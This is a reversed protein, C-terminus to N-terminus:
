MFVSVVRFCFVIREWLLSYRSLVTPVYGFYVTLCFHSPQSPLRGFTLGHHLWGFFPPVTTERLFSRALITQSLLDGSPWYWAPLPLALSSTRQLALRACFTPRPTQQRCYLRRPHWHCTLIPMVPPSHLILSQDNFTNSCALVSQDIDTMNDGHHPDLCHALIFLLSAAFTRLDKYSGDSHSSFSGLSHTMQRLPPSNALFHPRRRFRQGAQRCPHPEMQISFYFPFPNDACLVIFAACRYKRLLLVDIRSKATNRQGRYLPCCRPQAGHALQWIEEM